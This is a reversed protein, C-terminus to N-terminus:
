KEIYTDTNLILNVDTELEPFNDAPYDGFFVKHYYAVIGSFLKGLEANSIERIYEMDTKHIHLSILGKGNLFDLLLLYYLRVATKFDGAQKAAAILNKAEEPNFGRGSIISEISYKFGGETKKNKLIFKVIKYIIFGAFFVAAALLTYLVIKVMKRAGAESIGPNMKKFFKKLFEYLKLLIKDMLRSGENEYQFSKDALIEKVYEPDPNRLVIEEQGAPETKESCFVAAADSFIIIGAAIVSCFVKYQFCSM